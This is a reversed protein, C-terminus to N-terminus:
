FNTRTIRLGRLKFVGNDVPNTGSWLATEHDTWPGATSSASRWGLLVTVVQNTLVAPPSVVEGSFPSEYGRADVAAVRFFTQGLLNSVVGVFNTVTLANTYVGSEPGWYLRYGTMGPIPTWALTVPRPKPPAVVAKPFPPLTAGCLLVAALLLAFSKM